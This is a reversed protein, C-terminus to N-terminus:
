EFKNVLSDKDFSILIKKNFPSMVYESCSFLDRVLEKQELENLERNNSIALKKSLFKAILHEVGHNQDPMEDLAKDLLEIIIFNIKEMPCFAPAGLVEISTNNIIKIQFGALSLTNQIEKLVNNQKVSLSITIPFILLQSSIKDTPNEQCIKNFLIRQHARRQNIVVLSSGNSYVIYGTFLQFITPDPAIEVLKPNRQPQSIDTSMRNSWESPKGEVDRFPNYKPDIPITPPEVTTDKFFHPVSFEPNKDFDIPPTIHHIGLSYKVTSNLIPYLHEIEEFKVETKTPHINVDIKNTPAELFVFFGPQNKEPLLGEYAQLIAHRLYPHRIYRKNVFFYQPIGRKKSMSPNLIYGSIKAIQTESEIELLNDKLKPGFINRLRFKITAVPLHLLEQDEEFVDFRVHCHSIALRYIEDLIYQQERHNSKLFNRRVPTNFFLNKVGISTGNEAAMAEKKTVRGGEMGLFTGLPQNQTKSIVEVQAISAISALAEGRFGKTVIKTLDDISKIKSTAHRQFALEMDEPAIGVGNDVVKILSRGAEKIFIQIQTSRADIANEMLEKVVSAPRQIVEGAAIQNAVQQPLRSILGSM